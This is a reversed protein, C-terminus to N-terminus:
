TEKKTSGKPRGRGRKVEPSAKNIGAQREESDGFPITKLGSNGKYGEVAGAKNKVPQKPDMKAGTIDPNIVEIPLTEPVDTYGALKLADKAQVGISVLISATQARTAKIQANKLEDDQDIDAIFKFKWGKEWGERHPLIERTIKREYYRMIPYLMKSKTINRGIYATARNTDGEIFEDPKFGWMGWILQAVFRQGELWEMDHLTHSLTTVDEDKVLHLISGFKYSGKNKADVDALRKALQPTTMIQNHHWVLSPVVGNAFTKGAARTSDILYTLQYKLQSIYDTGYIDDSKPYMSLYVVEEPQFSVYVGPRSRQWWRKTYGTSLFGYAPYGHPQMRVERYPRDIEKFFETGSYAKFEEVYGGKTYSNVIAGADYRMLDRLSMRIVDSFSEQPNPSEIWDVEDELTKNDKDVIDFNLTSIYDCLSKEVMAFYANKALDDNDAKVFGSRWTGLVNYYNSVSHIARREADTIDIDTAGKIDPEDWVPTIQQPLNAKIFAEALQESPFMDPNVTKRLPNYRQLTNLFGM